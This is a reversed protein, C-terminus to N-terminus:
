ILCHRYYVTIADKSNPVDQPRCMRNCEGYLPLIAFGKKFQRGAVIFDKLSRALNFKKVNKKVNKRSTTFRLDVFWKQLNLSDGQNPKVYSTDTSTNIPSARKSQRGNQVTRCNNVKSNSTHAENSYITKMAITTATSWPFITGVRLYM